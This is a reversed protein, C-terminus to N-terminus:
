QSDEDDLEDLCLKHVNMIPRLGSVGLTGWEEREVDIPRECIGCIVDATM